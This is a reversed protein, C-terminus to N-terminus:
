RAQSRRDSQRRGVAVKGVYASPAVAVDIEVGVPGCCRACLGPPAAAPTRPPPVMGKGLEEPRSPRACKSTVLPPPYKSRPGSLGGGRRSFNRIGSTPVHKM